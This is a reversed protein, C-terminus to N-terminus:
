AFWMEVMVAGALLGLGSLLLVFAWTALDRRSPGRVGELIAACCMGMTGALILSGILKIVITM